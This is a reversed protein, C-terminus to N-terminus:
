DPEESALRPAHAYDIPARHSNVSTSPLPAPSIFLTPERAHPGGTVGQHSSQGAQHHISEHTPTDNRPACHFHTQVFDRTDDFMVAAERNFADMLAPDFTRDLFYRAIGLARSAEM